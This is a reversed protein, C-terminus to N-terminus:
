TPPAGPKTRCWKVRRIRPVGQSPPVTGFTRFGLRIRSCHKGVVKDAWFGPVTLYRVVVETGAADDNKSTDAVPADAETREAWREGRLAWRRVSATITNLAGQGIDGTYVKKSLSTRGRGGAIFLKHREVAPPYEGAIIKELVPRVCVVQEFLSMAVYEDDTPAITPPAPTPERPIPTKRGDGDGIDEEDASGV